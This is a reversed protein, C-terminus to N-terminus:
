ACAMSLASYGVWSGMWIGVWKECWESSGTLEYDVVSNVGFDPDVAVVQIVMSNPPSTENISVSYSPVPFVPPNDNYDSM